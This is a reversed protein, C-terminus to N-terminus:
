PFPDVRFSEDSLGATTTSDGAGAGIGFGGTCDSTGEM